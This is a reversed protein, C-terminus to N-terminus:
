LPGNEIKFMQLALLFYDKTELSEKRPPINKSM